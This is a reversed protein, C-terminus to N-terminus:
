SNQMGPQAVRRVGLTKASWELNSKGAVLITDRFTHGDSQPVDSSIDPLRPFARERNSQSNTLM